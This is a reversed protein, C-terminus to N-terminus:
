LGPVAAQCWVDFCPLVAPPAVAWVRHCQKWHARLQDMRPDRTAHYGLAHRWGEATATEFITNDAWELFCLWLFQPERPRKKSFSAAYELFGPCRQQLIASTRPTLIGEAEVVLRLWYSFARWKIFQNVAEGLRASTVLRSESDALRRSYRALRAEEQRYKSPGRMSPETTGAANGALGPLARM